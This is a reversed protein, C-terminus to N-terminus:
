CRLESTGGEAAKASSGHGGAAAASGGSDEKSGKGARGQQGQRRGIGKGRGGGDSARKRGEGNGAFRVNSGKKKNGSRRHHRERVAKLIDDRDIGHRSELDRAEVEQTQLTQPWIGQGGRQRVLTRIETTNSCLSSLFLM